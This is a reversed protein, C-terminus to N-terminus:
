ITPTMGVYLEEFDRRKGEEVDFLDYLIRYTVLERAKSGSNAVVVAGYEREPVMVMFTAFSTVTGTHWYIQEGQFVSGSWGLGYFLPNPGFMAENLHHFTRPKKLERHGVKSIPGAEAMMCRLYRTYDVVNSLVAGAGEDGRLLDGEGRDFDINRAFSKSSPEWQYSDAVSLGSYKVIPDYPGLFTENMGMPDWLHRHLFEGLDLGTLKNIIYGAAAFMM